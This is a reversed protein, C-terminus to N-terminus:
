LGEPREKKMLLSTRKLTFSRHLEVPFAFGGKSLLPPPQKKSYKKVKLLVRAPTKARGEDSKLNIVFSETAKPALIYLVLFVCQKGRRDTADLRVFDFMVSIDALKVSAFGPGTKPEIEIDEFKAPRGEMSLMLYVDYLVEESRNYVNVTSRIDWEHAKIDIQKPSVVVPAKLKKCIYFISAWIAAGVVSVFIAIVLARM